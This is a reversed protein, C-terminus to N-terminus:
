GFPHLVLDFLVLFISLGQRTACEIMCSNLMRGCASNMEKTAILAILRLLSLSLSPDVGMINYWIGSQGIDYLTYMCKCM